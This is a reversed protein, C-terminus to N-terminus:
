QFKAGGTKFMLCVWANRFFNSSPIEWFNTFRLYKKGRRREAETQNFIYRIYKYVLQEKNSYVVYIGM